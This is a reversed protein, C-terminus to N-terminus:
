MVAIVVAISIVFPVLTLDLPATAYKKVTRYIYKGLNNFVFDYRLTLNPPIGDSVCTYCRERINVGGIWVWGPKLGSGHCGHCSHQPM